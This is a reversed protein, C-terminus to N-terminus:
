FPLDDTKVESNLDIQGGVASLDAPAKAEGSAKFTLEYDHVELNLYLKGEYTRQIVRGSVAIKSLKDKFRNLTEARKGFATCNWWQAVEEGKIYQVDKVGFTAIMKGEKTERTKLNAFNGSASLTNM